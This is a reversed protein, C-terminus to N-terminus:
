SELDIPLGDFLTALEEDVLALSDGKKECEPDSSKKLDDVAGSLVTRARRLRLLVQKMTTAPYKQKKSTM